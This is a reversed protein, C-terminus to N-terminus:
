FITSSNNRDKILILFTMRLFNGLDDEQIKEGTIDSCAKTLVQDILEQKAVSKLHNM